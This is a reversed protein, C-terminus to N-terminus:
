DCNGVCDTAVELTGGIADKPGLGLCGPLKTYLTYGEQPASQMITVTKSKGDSLDVLNGEKILPKCGFFVQTLGAPPTITLTTQDTVCVHDNNGNIKFGGNGNSVILNAVSSVPSVSRIKCKKQGAPRGPQSEQAQAVAHHRSGACAVLVCAAGGLALSVAVLRSAFPVGTMSRSSEQIRTQM